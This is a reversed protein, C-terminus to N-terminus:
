RQLIPLLFALTKGTGTRSQALIDRGKFVTPIAQVQIETPTTIGRKALVDALEPTVGLGTFTPM